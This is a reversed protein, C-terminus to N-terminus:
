KSHYAQRRFKNPTVQHKKNFERCLHASDNFGSFRSIQTLTMSSSLLLREAARIRLDNYVKGYSTGESKLKRQLTRVSLKLASAIREISPKNSIDEALLRELQYVLSDSSSALTEESVHLQELFFDDMGDIRCSREIRSWRYCWRTFKEIALPQIDIGTLIDYLEQSRVAEWEVEIDRCGYESLAGKLTSAVFMDDAPVPPTGALHVDEVIIYGNGEAVVELRRTPHFHPAHVSIKNVLSGPSDSNYLLFFMPSPPAESPFEECYALFRQPGFNKLLSQALATRDPNGPLNKERWQNRCERVVSPFKVLMISYLLYELHTRHQM